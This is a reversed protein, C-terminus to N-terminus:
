RLKRSRKLLARANQMDHRLDGSSKLDGREFMGAIEELHPELDRFSTGLLHGLVDGLQRVLKEHFEDTAPAFGAATMWSAAALRPDREALKVVDLIRQLVKGPSGPLGKMAEKLKDANGLELMSRALDGRVDDGAEAAIKRLRAATDKESAPKLDGPTVAPAGIAAVKLFEQVVSLNSIPDHRMHADLTKFHEVVDAAPLGFRGELERQMEATDDVGEDVEAERYAGELGRAIDARLGQEEDRSHAWEEQREADFDRRKDEMETMLTPM